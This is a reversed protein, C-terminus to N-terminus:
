HNFYFENSSLLAWFLESFATGADASEGAHRLCRSLEQADPPRSLVALYIERITEEPPLKRELIRDLRGGGGAKAGAFFPAETDSLKLVQQIGATYDSGSTADANSTRAIMRIFDSRLKELDKGTWRPETASQIAGFLQEPSLPRIRAREFSTTKVTGDSRSSLQYIRSSVLLRFFAKLHFGERAFNAGLEELLGPVAPTKGDALDDLPEIVGWGLFHAWFRNAATRSFRVNEPRVILRALESTRRYGERPTSGDLFVPAAFVRPSEGPDRGPSAVKAYFGLMGQFDERTWRDRPHDHCQACQLSVGLFIRATRGLLGEFRDGRGDENLLITAFTPYVAGAGQQPPMQASGTRVLEGVIEDYGKGQELCAAIWRSLLPKFPVGIFDGRPYGLMISALREGWFPPFERSDLLERVWADRRGPPDGASYRLLEAPTPLRGVLDLTVRRQFEADSCPAAPVAGRSRWFREFVRDIPHVARAAPDPAAPDQVLLGHALFLLILHM